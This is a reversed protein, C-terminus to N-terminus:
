LNEEDMEDNFELANDRSPFPDVGYVGLNDITGDARLIVIGADNGIAVEEATEIAAEKRDHASIVHESDERKVVWMEGQPRVFVNM